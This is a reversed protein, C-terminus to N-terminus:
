YGIGGFVHHVPTENVNFAIASEGMRELSARIRSCFNRSRAHSSKGGGSWSM